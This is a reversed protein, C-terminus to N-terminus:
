SRRLSLLVDAEKFVILESFVQLFSNQGEAGSFEYESLSTKVLYIRSHASLHHHALSRWAVCAKAEHCNRNNKHKCPRKLRFHGENLWSCM